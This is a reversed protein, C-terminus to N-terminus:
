APLPVIREAEVAGSFDLEINAEADSTPFTLEAAEEM